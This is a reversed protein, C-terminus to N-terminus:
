SHDGPKPPNCDIPCGKRDFMSQEKHSSPNQTVNNPQHASVPATTPVHCLQQAPATVPPQIQVQQPTHFIAGRSQQIKPIWADVMKLEQYKNSVERLINTPGLIRPSEMTKLTELHSSFKWVTSALFVDLLMDDIDIPVRGSSELCRLIGSIFGVAKEVNEGPVSTIKFSQLKHQLARTTSENNNVVLQVLLMFILPGGRETADYTLLKAMLTQRLDMVCSNLILDNLWALNQCDIISCSFRSYIKNSEQVQSITVTAYSDLICDCKQIGKTGDSPTIIEMRIFVSEMCKGILREKLEQVQLSFNLQKEFYDTNNDKVHESFDINVANLDSFKTLLSQVASTYFKM